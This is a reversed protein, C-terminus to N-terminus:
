VRSHRSKTHRGKGPSSYIERLTSEIFYILTKEQAGLIFYWRWHNNEQVPVAAGESDENMM